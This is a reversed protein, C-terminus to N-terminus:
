AATNRHIAMADRLRRATSCSPCHIANRGSPKAPQNPVAHLERANVEDVNAVAALLADIQKVNGKKAAAHLPSDPEKM